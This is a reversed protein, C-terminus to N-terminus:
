PLSSDYDMGAHGSDEFHKYEADSYGLIEKYVYENHQGLMPPHSRINNPTNTMKWQIGPHLYNGVEPHDVPEFFGRDNLHPDDYSDKENAVFGAPVGVAQLQEMITRDIKDRSWAAIHEDIEDRNKYRSLADSFKEDNSWEPNGMVGRLADWEADSRCAIAIWRDEGECPYVNHPVMTRDTNGLNQHVRENMTYDMVYEGIYPVFNEATAFEILQGEGTKKRHFLGVLAAYGAGAGGADAPFVDSIEGPDGGPYSRLLLHGAIAEMHSGFTRYNKWPGDLGFAPMKVMILRPNIKSLEEWTVGLKEMTEPVNNEILMDSKEVLRHFAEKGDPRTLDVTMSLKNRTHANIFASRNWPRDGVERDPYGFGASATRVVEPNPRVPGGASRAMSNNLSEVRIIEAGWDGLLQTAYPGVWIVTMDIVRIGELPLKSM